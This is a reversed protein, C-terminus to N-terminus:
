NGYVTSCPNRLGQNPGTARCPSIPTTSTSKNWLLDGVDRPKPRTGRPLDLLDALLRVAAPNARVQSEYYVATSCTLYSEDYSKQLISLTPKSRLM